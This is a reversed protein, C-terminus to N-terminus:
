DACCSQLLTIIVERNYICFGKAQLTYTIYGLNMVKFLGLAADLGLDLQREHSEVHIKQTPCFM